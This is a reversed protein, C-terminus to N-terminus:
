VCRRIPGGGKNVHKAGPTPAMLAMLALSRPLRDEQVHPDVLRVSRPRQRCQRLRHHPGACFM